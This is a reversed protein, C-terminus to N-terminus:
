EKLPTIFFRKIVFGAGIGILAALFAMITYYIMEFPWLNHTSSDPISDIIIKIFTAIIFGPVITYFIKKYQDKTILTILLSLLLTLIASVRIIRTNIFTHYSTFWIPIGATLVSILLLWKINIKKVM